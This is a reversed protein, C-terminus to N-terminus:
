ILNKILELILVFWCMSYMWIDVTKNKYVIAPIFVLMGAIIWIVLLAMDIALM